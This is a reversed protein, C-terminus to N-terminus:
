KFIDEYAAAYGYAWYYVRPALRRGAERLLTNEYWDPDYKEIKRIIDDTYPAKEQRCEIIDDAIGSFAKRTKAAKAPPMNEESILHEQMEKIDERIDEENYTYKDTYCVLKSAFYNIDSVYSYFNCLNSKGYWCATAFGVDGQIILSGLTKDIIYRIYYM